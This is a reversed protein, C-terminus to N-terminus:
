SCPVKYAYPTSLSLHHLNSASAKILSWAQLNEIVRPLLAQKMRKVAPAIRFCGKLVWHKQSNVWAKSLLKYKFSFNLLSKWHPQGVPFSLREDMSAREEEYIELGREYSRDSALKKIDSDTIGM